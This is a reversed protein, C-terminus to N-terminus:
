RERSHFDFACPLGPRHDDIMQQPPLSQTVRPQLIHNSVMGSHPNTEIPIYPIQPPIYPTKSLPLLSSRLHSSTQSPLPCKSTPILLQAIPLSSDSAPIRNSFPHNAKHNAFPNITSVAWLQSINLLQLTPSDTKATSLGFCRM